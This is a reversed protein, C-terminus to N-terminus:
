GRGWVRSPGVVPLLWLTLVAALGCARRIRVPSGCGPAQALVPTTRFGNVPRDLYSSRAMAALAALWLLLWCPSRDTWIRAEQWSEQRRSTSNLGTNRKSSSQRHEQHMRCWVVDLLAQPRIRNMNELCRMPCPPPRCLGRGEHRSPQVCSAAQDKKADRSSVM